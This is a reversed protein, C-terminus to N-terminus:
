IIKETFNQSEYSFILIKLRNKLKFLYHEHQKINILSKTKPSFQLSKYLNNKSKININSNKNSTNLSVDLMPSSLINKLKKNKKSKQNLLEPIKTINNNIKTNSDYKNNNKRIIKPSLNNSLKSNYTNSNLKVSILKNNNNDKNLSNNIINSKDELNNILTTNNLGENNLTMYRNNNNIINEKNTYIINQINKNTSFFKKKIINFKDQIIKQLNQNFLQIEKLNKTYTLLQMKIINYRNFLDNSMNILNKKQKIINEININEESIDFNSFLNITEKIKQKLIDYDNGENLIILYDIEIQKIDELLNKIFDYKMDINKIEKEKDYNWYKLFKYAEDNIIKEDLNIAMNKVLNKVNNSYENIKIINKNHTIHKKQNLCFECLFEECQECIYIASSNCKCNYKNININNNEKINNKEQKKLPNNSIELKIKKSKFIEKLKQTDDIPILLNNKYYIYLKSVDFIKYKGCLMIKLQQYESEPSLKISDIETRNQYTIDFIIPNM